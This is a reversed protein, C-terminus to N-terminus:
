VNRNLLSKRVSVSESDEAPISLLKKKNQKVEYISCPLKLLGNYVVTGLVLIGFGGLQLYSFNNWPQGYDKEVTYYLLLSIMWIVILSLADVITRHVTTLAKTVSLGFFNYFAVSIFYTIAMALLLNNHTIQYIADLSNEYIEGHVKIHYMIPLAITSM